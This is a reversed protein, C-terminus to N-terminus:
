CRRSLARVRWVHGRTDENNILTSTSQSADDDIPDYNGDDKAQDSEENQGALLGTFFEKGLDMMLMHPWACWYQPLITTESLPPSRKYVALLQWVELCFNPPVAIESPPFVPLNQQEV